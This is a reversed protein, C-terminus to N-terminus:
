RRSRATRSSRPGATSRCTSASCRARTMSCATATRTATSPSTPRATATAGPRPTTWSPPAPCPSRRAPQQRTTPDGFALLQGTVQQTVPIGDLVAPLGVIGPRDLLIVMGARGDSLATVATGVVGPIGLVADTHRGQAAMARRLDPIPQPVGPPPSVAPGTPSEATRDACAYWVASGAAMLMVVATRPLRRVTNM